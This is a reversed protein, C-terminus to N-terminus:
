AFPKCADIIIKSHANQGRRCDAADIRPALAWSWPNRM